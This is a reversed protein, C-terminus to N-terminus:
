FFFTMLFFYFFSIVSVLYSLLNKTNIRGLLANVFVTSFLIDLDFICLCFYIYVSSLEINFLIIFYHYFYFLLSSYGM